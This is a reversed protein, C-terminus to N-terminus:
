RFPLFDVGVIALVDTSQSVLVSGTPASATKAEHEKLSM